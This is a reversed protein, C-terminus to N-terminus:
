WSLDPGPATAAAKRIPKLYDRNNVDKQIITVKM